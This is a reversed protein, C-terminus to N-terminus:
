KNPGNLSRRAKKPKKRAKFQKNSSTKYGKEITEKKFLKMAIFGGLSGLAYCIIISVIFGLILTMFGGIALSVGSDLINPLDYPLEPPTFFSFVFLLFGLVSGAIGGVKYSRQNEVTLYTAIFGMIIVTFVGSIGLLILLISGIIVSLLVAGSIDYKAM